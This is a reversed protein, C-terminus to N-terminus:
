EFFRELLEANTGSPQISDLARLPDKVSRGLEQAMPRRGTLEAHDTVREFLPRVPYEEFRSAWPDTRIGMAFTPTPQPGIHASISQSWGCTRITSKLGCPTAM